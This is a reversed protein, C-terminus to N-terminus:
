YISQLCDNISSKGPTTTPPSTITPAVHAFLLWKHTELLRLLRYIKFGFTGATAYDNFGDDQDFQFAVRNIEEATNTIKIIKQDSKHLKRSKTGLESDVWQWAASIQVFSLLIVSLTTLPKM